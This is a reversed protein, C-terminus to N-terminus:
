VHTPPGEDVKRSCAARVNGKRSYVTVKKNACPLTNCATNACNELLDQSSIHTFNLVGDASGEKLKHVNNSDSNFSNHEPLRPLASYHHLPETTLTKISSSTQSSSPMSGSFIQPLHEDAESVLSNDNMMATAINGNPFQQELSTREKFSGQSELSKTKSRSSDSRNGTSKCKQKSVHRKEHRPSKQHPIKLPLTTNRSCHSQGDRSSPMHRSCHPRALIEISTEHTRLGTCTASRAENTLDVLSTSDNLDSSQSFFCSHSSSQHGQLCLRRADSTAYTRLSDMTLSRSGHIGDAIAEYSLQKFQGEDILAPDYEKATFLVFSM